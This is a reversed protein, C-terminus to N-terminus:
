HSRRKGIRALRSTPLRKPRLGLRDKSFIHDLITALLILVLAQEFTISQKSLLVLSLLFATRGLGWRQVANGVKALDVM